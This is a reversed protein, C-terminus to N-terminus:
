KGTPPWRTVDTAQESDEELSIDQATAMDPAPPNAAQRADILQRVVARIADVDGADLIDTGPPLSNILPTGSESVRLGVTRAAALLVAHESYTTARAFARITDPDPITKITGKMWATFTQHSMNARDGLARQSDGTRSTHREILDRLTPMDHADPKAM